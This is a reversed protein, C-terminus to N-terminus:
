NVGELIFGTGEFELCVGEVELEVEFFCLSAGMMKTSESTSGSISSDITLFDFRGCTM